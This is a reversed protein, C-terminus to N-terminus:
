RNTDSHEPHKTLTVVKAGHEPSQDLVSQLTVSSLYNDITRNLNEWLNHTLCPLGQHCDAKSRCQTADLTDDAAAIIEAINIDGASRGLIYGGGPGRISEVLGARRLRGFLQELYSLSISRRESIANLKVAGNESHMALDLMATVAFRGKTTLKM